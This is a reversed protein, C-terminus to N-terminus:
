ANQTAGLFEQSFSYLSKQIIQEMDLGSEKYFNTFSEPTTMKGKEIMDALESLRESPLSELLDDSIRADLYDIATKRLDAYNAPNGSYRAAILKDVYDGLVKHDIITNNEM